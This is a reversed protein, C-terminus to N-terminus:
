IRSHLHLLSTMSINDVEVGAILAGQTKMKEIIKVLMVSIDFQVENETSAEIVELAYSYCKLFSVLMM